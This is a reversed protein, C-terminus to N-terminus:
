GTTYLLLETCYIHLSFKTLRVTIWFLYYWVAICVTLTHNDAYMQNVVATYASLTSAANSTCYETSQANYASVGRGVVANGDGSAYNFAAANLNRSIFTHNNSHHVCANM